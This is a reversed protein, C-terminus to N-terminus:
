WHSIHDWGKGNTIKVIHIINNVFYALDFLPRSNWIKDQLKAYKTPNIPDNNNLLSTIFQDDITNVQANDNLNFVEDEDLEEIQNDPLQTSAKQFLASNKPLVEQLNLIDVNDLDEKQIIEFEENSFLEYEKSKKNFLAKKNEKRKLRKRRNVGLIRRDASIGIMGKSNVIEIIDEDYLNISTPNFEFGYDGDVKTKDYAVIKCNYDEFDDVVKLFKDTIKNHSFGTCGNHTAIIPFDESKQNNDQLWQKRLKYFQLRSILSMHKVDLLIKKGKIKNSNGLDIKASYCLNMLFKFGAIDYIGLGNPRIYKRVYEQKSNLLQHLGFCHNCVTWQTLHTITLYLIRGFQSEKVKKFLSLDLEFQNFNTFYGKDNKDPNSVKLK